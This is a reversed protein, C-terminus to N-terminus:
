AVRRASLVAPNASSSAATLAPAAARASAAGFGPPATSHLLQWRYRLETPHSRDEAVHAIEENTHSKNSSWEDDITSLLGEVGRLLEVRRDLNMILGTNKRLVENLGVKLLEGEPLRSM